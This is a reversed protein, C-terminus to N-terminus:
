KFGNFYFVFSFFCHLIYGLLHACNLPFYAVALSGPPFFPIFVLVDTLFINGSGSDM